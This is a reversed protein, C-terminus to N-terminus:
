RTAGEPLTEAIREALDALMAMAAEPREELLGRLADAGVALGSVGSPGAIVDAMRGTRRLISLEGVLDGAGRRAVISAGTRVEVSGETIMLMSDGGEGERFVMDGADVRREVAASAVLQLEEPDLGSFLPVQQLTLVRDLAGPEPFAGEGVIPAAEHVLGSPDAAAASRLADLDSLLEDAFARVALARIWPDFDDIMERYAERPEPIAEEDGEILGVLRRALSRDAMSELAELAQSRTEADSSWAGRRVAALSPDEAELAHIAWRELREQRSRLVDHLYRGALSDTRVAVGAGWRHLTAARDIEAEIWPRLQPHAGADVLASLAAESARVSGGELVDLLLRRGEESSGLARGATARVAPSVDDLLERLTPSDSGDLARALARRVQRDSHEGLASLDVDGPDVGAAIADLGAAVANADPERLLGAVVQRGTDGGVLSAASGRVRPDSDALLRDATETDIDLGIISALAAARSRVDPDPDTLRARVAEATGLAEMAALRVGPDSDDLRAHLREVSGSGGLRGLIMTAVRRRGPRFDELTSELAHLADAELHPKQVGTTPATFVDVLGNEVAEVLASRYAPRMRLVILGAVVAVGLSVGFRAQRPLEGAVLLIAGSLATGLQAPVATIFAMVQPRRRGRLVNFLSSTATGGIANIAIWQAGRVLSATLLTFAALWVVFGSAYVIPVILLTVVVGLRTFLARAILLSVLFTAATALSSFVGLYGAVAAETDFSAAVIESFPFVVLYFLISLALTVVAVLRLLPTRWTVSLGARLDAAPSAVVDDEDRFHRRSAGLTLLGGTVLLGAQVLLLNETGLLAAAPGTLANGLIGGAIGASAFLPFLRKAQRTTCVEGAANWMLTFTVMMVLQASLWVVPYIGPTGAGIGVRELLVLAAGVLPVPWLWSRAGKWSLGAAYGLIGLMVVFGSSLIMVPLHEVGFRLFFLADAANIGVGHSAQIVFFLATVWGVLPMEGPQIGLAAFARRHAGTHETM